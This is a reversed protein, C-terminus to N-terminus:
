RKGSTSPILRSATATVWPVIVRRLFNMEQRSIVQTLGTALTIGAVVTLSHPLFPMMAHTRMRALVCLRKWANRRELMQLTHIPMRTQLVKKQIFDVAKRADDSGSTLNVPYQDIASMARSSIREDVNNKYVFGLIAAIVELVIILIM